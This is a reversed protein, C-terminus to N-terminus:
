QCRKLTGIFLILSHMPPLFNLGLESGEIVIEFPFPITTQVEILNLSLGNESELNLNGQTTGIGENNFRTAKVEGNPFIELAFSGADDQGCWSGELVSPQSASAYSGLIVLMIKVLIMKKM